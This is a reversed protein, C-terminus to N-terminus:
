RALPPRGDVTVSIGNPAQIQVLGSSDLASKGLYVAGVISALAIFGVPIIHSLKIMKIVNSNKMPTLLRVLVRPEKENDSFRCLM